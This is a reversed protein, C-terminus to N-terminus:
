PDRAPNHYNCHFLSLAFRHKSYSFHLFFTKVKTLETITEIAVESKM